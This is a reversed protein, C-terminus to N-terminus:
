VDRIFEGTQIDWLKKYHGSQKKILEHHTGEEVIKGKEMVIIRDMQM